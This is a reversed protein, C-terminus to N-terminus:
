LCPNTEPLSPESYLPVPRLLKRFPKSIKTTLPQTSPVIFKRFLTKEAGFDIPPREAVAPQDTTTSPTDATTKEPAEEETDGGCGMISISMIGVAFIALVLWTLRLQMEKFEEKLHTVCDVANLLWM